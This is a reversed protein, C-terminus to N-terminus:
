NGNTNSHAIAQAASGEVESTLEGVFLQNCFAVATTTGRRSVSTELQAAIFVAQSELPVTVRVGKASIVEPVQAEFPRLSIEERGWHM